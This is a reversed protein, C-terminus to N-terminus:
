ASAALLQECEHIYRTAQVSRYFRLAREVETTNGSQLRAYAEEPLAGIQAYIAAARLPDGGAIARAAEIWPTTPTEALAALFPKEMGLAHALWATEGYGIPVRTSYASHAPGIVDLLLDRARGREQFAFFVHAAVSLAPDVVQPDAAARALVLTKEIDDVAGADGRPLRMMARLYYAQAAM